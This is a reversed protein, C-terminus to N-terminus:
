RSLVNKQLRIFNILGPCEAQFNPFVIKEFLDCCIAHTKKALSDFCPSNYLVFYSRTAEISLKFFDIKDFFQRGVWIGLPPVIAWGKGSAIIGFMTLYTDPEIRRDQTFHFSRYIRESQVFDFTERGFRLYSLNEVLNALEKVTSINGGKRNLHKPVVVLFDESLLPFGFTNDVDTM